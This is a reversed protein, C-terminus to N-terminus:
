ESVAEQAKRKQMEAAPDLTLTDVIQGVADDLKLGDDIAFVIADNKGYIDTRDLGLRVTLSVDLPSPRHISQTVPVPWSSADGEVHMAIQGKQLDLGPPIPTPRGAPPQDDTATQGISNIPKQFGTWLAYRGGFTDDDIFIPNSSAAQHAATWVEKLQNDLKWRRYRPWNTWGFPGDPGDELERQHFYPVDLNLPTRQGGSFGFTESTQPKSIDVPDEQYRRLYDIRSDDTYGLSIAQPTEQRGNGTYGPPIAENILLGGLGPMGALEATLKRLLDVARPDSPSVWNGGVLEPDLIVPRNMTPASPPVASQFAQEATEGLVTVDETVLKEWARDTTMPPGNRWRLLDMRAYPTIHKKACEDIAAALVGAHAPNVSPLAKSDFYTEGDAFATCVFCTIGAAALRDISARASDADSFLGLAGIPRTGLAQKLSTHPPPLSTETRFTFTGRSFGSRGFATSTDLVVTGLSPIDLAVMLHPSFEVQSSANLTSALQRVAPKDTDEDPLEAAQSKARSVLATQSSTPLDGLKIQFVKEEDGANAIVTSPVQIADGPLSTVFQFVKNKQRAEEASDVRRSIEDDWRGVARAISQQRVALGDVDDTLVYAPGVKRWSAVLSYDIAEVVDGADFGRSVDGLTVIPRGAYHWDCILELGTAKAVDKIVAGVTEGDKLIIPRDFVSRSLDLDSTKINNPQQTQIKAFPGGENPPPGGTTDDVIAPEIETMRYDVPMPVSVDDTDLSITHYNTDSLTFSGAAYIHLRTSSRFTDATLTKVDHTFAEFAAEAEVGTNPAKAKGPAANIRRALLHDFIERQDATLTDLSLGGSAAARWQDSDLSGLFITLADGFQITSPSGTIPGPMSLVTMTSPGIAALHSCARYSLQYRGCITQISDLPADPHDPDGQDVDFETPPAVMLLADAGLPTDKPLAKLAQEASVPAASGASDDQAWAHSTLLLLSSALAIGISKM